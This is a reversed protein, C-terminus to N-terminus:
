KRIAFKAFTICSTIKHRHLSTSVRQRIAKIKIQAGRMGSSILRQFFLVARKRQKLTTWNWPWLCKMLWAWTNCELCTDPITYWRNTRRLVEDRYLSTLLNEIQALARSMPSVKALWIISWVKGGQGRGFLKASCVIFIM